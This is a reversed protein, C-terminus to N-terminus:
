RCDKFAMGCANLCSSVTYAKTYVPNSSELKCSLELNDAVLDLPCYEYCSHLYKYYGRKCKLCINNKCNLCNESCQHKKQLNTKYSFPNPDDNHFPLINFPHSHKDPFNELTKHLIQSSKQTSYHFTFLYSFFVCLYYKM